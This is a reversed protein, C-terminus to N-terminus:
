IVAHLMERNVIRTKAMNKAGFDVSESCTKKTIEHNRIEIEVVTEM